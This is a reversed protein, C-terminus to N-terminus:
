HEGLERLRAKAERDWDLLANLHAPKDVSGFKPDQCVAQYQQEMRVILLKLLDALARRDGANLGDIPVDLAQPRAPDPQRREVPREPIPEPKAVRKVRKSLSFDNEAGLQLTVYVHASIGGSKSRFITKRSVWKATELAGLAKSITKPNQVGSVQSLTARSLRLAFSGRDQALKCLALWVSAASPCSRVLERLTCMNNADDASGETEDM